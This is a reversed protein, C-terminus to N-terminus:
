PSDHLRKDLSLNQMEKQKSDLKQRIEQLVNLKEQAKLQPTVFLLYAFIMFRSNWCHIFLHSLTSYNYKSPNM